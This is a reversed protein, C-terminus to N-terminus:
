FLWNIARTVLFALFPAPASELESETSGCWTALLDTVFGKDVPCLLLLLLLLFPFSLSFFTIAVRFSRRKLANRISTDSRLMNIAVKACKVSIACSEGDEFSHFSLSLASPTLSLSLSRSFTIYFLRFHNIVWAPVLVPLCSHPFPCASPTLHRSPKELNRKKTSQQAPLVSKIPKQAM